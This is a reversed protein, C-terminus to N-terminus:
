DLPTKLIDFSCTSAGMAVCKTEVVKYHHDTGWLVGAELL